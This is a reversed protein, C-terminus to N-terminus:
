VRAKLANLVILACLVYISKVDFHIHPYFSVYFVDYSITLLVFIISYTPLALAWWSNMAFWHHFLHSNWAICYTNDRVRWHQVNKVRENKACMSVFCMSCLIESVSLWVYLWDSVCVFVMSMTFIVTVAHITMWYM